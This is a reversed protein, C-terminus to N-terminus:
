RRQLFAEVSEVIVDEHQPAAVSDVERV